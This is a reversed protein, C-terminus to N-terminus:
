AGRWDRLAARLGVTCVNLEVCDEAAEAVKRLRALDDLLAAVMERSVVMPRDLPGAAVLRRLTDHDATM